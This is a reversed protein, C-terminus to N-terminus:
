HGMTVRYEEVQTKVQDLREDVRELGEGLMRRLEGVLAEMQLKMAGGEEMGGNQENNSM